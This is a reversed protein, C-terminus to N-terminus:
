AEPHSFACVTATLSFIFKASWNKTLVPAYTMRPHFILHEDTNLTNEGLAEKSGLFRM